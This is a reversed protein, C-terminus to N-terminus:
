ARPAWFLVIEDVSIDTRELPVEFGEIEEATERWKAWIQQLEESLEDELDDITEEIDAAKETASRLREETRRTQSRRSAVGSLGRIGRRGGLFMTLVQGAGAIVEQQRRQGVDTDLERIRREAQALRRQASKVRTEYRERLKEAEGDAKDEAAALCRARFDDESEGPRSYLRLSRNRLLALSRERYLREEM